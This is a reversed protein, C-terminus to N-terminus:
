PADSRERLQKRLNRGHIFSFAAVMPLLTWLDNTMVMALWCAQSVLGWVPGSLSRNGMQWWAIFTTVSALVQFLIRPSM